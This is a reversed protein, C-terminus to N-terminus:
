NVGAENRNKEIEDLRRSMATLKEELEAIHQESSQKDQKPGRGVYLGVGGVVFLAVALISWGAIKSWFVSFFDVSTGSSAMSFITAPNLMEMFAVTFGYCLVLAGLVVFCYGFSKMPKM